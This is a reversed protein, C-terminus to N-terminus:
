RGRFMDAMWEQPSSQYCKNVPKIIDCSTQYVACSPLFPKNGSIIPYQVYPRFGARRPDILTDSNLPENRWMNDFLPYNNLVEGTYYSHDVDQERLYEVM